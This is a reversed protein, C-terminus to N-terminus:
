FLPEWKNFQTNFQCKLKISDNQTNQFKNKLEKSVKLSKVYLIGESNNTLSNTVNYIDSLNTKSIIKEEISNKDTLIKRTKKFSSIVELSNIQSAFHFNKLFVKVISGNSEEFVPHISITLHDNLRNLKQLIPLFHENILAYRLTYDCNVIEGNIFLIDTILFHFNSINSSDTDTYLYGEILYEKTFLNNIEMFFDTLINKELKNKQITENTLSDTFFYLLNFNEQKQIRSNHSILLYFKKSNNPVIYNTKGLCCSSNTQSIYFKNYSTLLDKVIGSKLLNAQSFNASKNIFSM